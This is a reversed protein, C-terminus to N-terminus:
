EYRLSEVVNLRAARWAPLLSGLFSVVIAAGVISAVVGASVEHPVSKMGYLTLPFVDHGLVFALTQRVWDIRDLIFLGLGLGLAVGALSTTVGYLIFTGMVGSRSLGLARVTGIDRTKQLVIMSIVAVVAFGAAVFLCGLVLSALASQLKLARFMTSTEQYGRVEFRHEGSLDDLAKQLRDEVERACRPDKLRVRVETAQDPALGTLRAAVARPVYAFERDYQHLGFEVKAAPVLTAKMAPGSPQRAGTVLQIERVDGMALPEILGAGPLIWDASGPPVRALNDTGTVAYELGADVGVFRVWKVSFTGDKARVKLLGLGTVNPSCAAVDSSSAEIAKVLEDAQGIRSGMPLVVLDSLIQRSKENFASVYGDMIGVVVIFATTGLLVSALAFLTIPKKLLYRLALTWSLM